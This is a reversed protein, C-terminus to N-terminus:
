GKKNNSLSVKESYLGSCPYNTIDPRVGYDANIAHKVAIKKSIRGDRWKRASKITFCLYLHTINFTLSEIKNNVNDAYYSFSDTLPTVEWCFYILGKKCIYYKTEFISSLESM